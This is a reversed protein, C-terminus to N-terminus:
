QLQARRANVLDQALALADDANRTQMEIFSQGDSVHIIRPDAYTVPQANRPLTHMIRDHVLAKFQGRQSQTHMDGSVRMEPVMEVLVFYLDPNSERSITREAHIVIGEIEVRILQENMKRWRAEADTRRILWTGGSKRAFIQARNIAQRVTAEALGYKECAEGATMVASLELPTYSAFGNGFADAAIEKEHDTFTYHEVESEWADESNTYEETEAVERGMKEFRVYLAEDDTSYYDIMRRIAAQADTIVTYHETEYGDSVNWQEGDFDARIDVGDIKPEITITEDTTIIQHKM